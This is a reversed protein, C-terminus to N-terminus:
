PPSRHHPPEIAILPLKEIRKAKFFARFFEPGEDNRNLTPNITWVAWAAWEV